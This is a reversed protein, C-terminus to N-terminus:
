DRNGTLLITEIVFSCARGPDGGLVGFQARTKLNFFGNFAKDIKITGKFFFKLIESSNVAPFVNV